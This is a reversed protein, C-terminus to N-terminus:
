LRTVNYSDSTNNSNINIDGHEIRNDNLQIIQAVFNSTTMAAHINEVLQDIDNRNASALSRSRGSSTTLWALWFTRPESNKKYAYFAYAGGGLIMLMGLGFAESGLLMLGLLAIGVAIVMSKISHPAKPEVRYKEVDTITSIQIMNGSYRIVRDTVEVSTM